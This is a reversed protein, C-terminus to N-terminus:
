LESQAKPEVSIDEPLTEPEVTVESSTDSVPDTTPVASQLEEIKQQIVEEYQRALESSEKLKELANILDGQNLLSSAEDLLRQASESDAPAVVVTESSSSDSSEVTENVSEPSDTIVTSTEVDTSTVETREREAVATIKDGVQKIKAEVTEVLEESTLEIEGKDYKDVIVEVAKVQTEAIEAKASDISKVVAADSKLSENNTLRLAIAEVKQDVQKVVEISRNIVDKEAKTTKVKDFSEQVSNLSDKFNDAAISIKERKETVDITSAAIQEIENIREEAFDVHLATKKNESVTLGVQVKESTLKVSYLIDGPISSKSANVTFAGSGLVFLVAVTVVGFPKALFNVFGAPVLMRIFNLIGFFSSERVPGQSSIQALLVERNARVWDERPKVNKLDELQKFIKEM